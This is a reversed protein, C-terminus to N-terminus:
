WGFLVCPHVWPELRIHLLPHSQGDDIPLFARPGTFTKHELIPSNSPLSAPRPPYAPPLSGVYFYLPPPHSLPNRSPIVNSMYIFYGVFLLIDNKLNWITPMVFHLVCVKKRKRCNYCIHHDSLDLKWLVYAFAFIYCAMSIRTSALDILIQKRVVLFIPTLLEPMPKLVATLWCGSNM